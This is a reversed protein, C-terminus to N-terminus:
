RYENLQCHCNLKTRTTLTTMAETITQYGTVEEFLRSSLFHKRDAKVYKLEKEIFGPLGKKKFNIHDNLGEPCRTVKVKVNITVHLLGLESAEAGPM